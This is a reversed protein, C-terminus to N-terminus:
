GRQEESPPAPVMPEQSNGLTRALINLAGVHDADGSYTCIVCQFEEGRRNEAAVWGCRPCTRSTNRPNVAVLRVRNEQALQEIRELVQRYTWPATAKRFEKSRKKSKGKKLDRLKEVGIVALEKWPLLKAQRNIYDRRAACARRRGKGGPMCHRVRQCVLKTEVGYRTGDSDVMLKNIGVDVGIVKGTEKVEGDPIEIWLAAWDNGLTCGQLLKAGPKGLWHNLRKHAKFPIVIPDGKALGSVKLVHDFSGKSTEIKAVLSSLRASGHVRPKGCMFGTAKAAKRTASLTELAVKLCNSRHRYSLSGGGIRNLTNADLRGPESWLSDMYRQTCGRVERRLAELKGLKRQTAERLSIKVARLM